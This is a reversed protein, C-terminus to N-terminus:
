TDDGLSATHIVGSRYNGVLSPGRRVLAAGDIAATPAAVAYTDRLGVLVLEGRDTGVSVFIAEPTDGHTTTSTTIRAYARAKRVGGAKSLDGDLVQALVNPGRFLRATAQDPGGGLPITVPPQRVATM